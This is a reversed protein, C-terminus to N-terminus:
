KVVECVVDMFEVGSPTPPVSEIKYIDSGHVFRMANTLGIKKRIRVSALMSSTPKDAKIQELGRQLRIDAWLKTVETWGTAPQGIADVGTAPQQLSVRSKLLGAKM